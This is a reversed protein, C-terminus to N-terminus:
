RLARRLESRVANARFSVSLWDDMVGDNDQWILDRSRDLMEAWLTLGLIEQAMRRQHAIRFFSTGIYYGILGGVFAAVAQIAIEVM